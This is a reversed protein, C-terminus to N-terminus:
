EGVHLLGRSEATGTGIVTINGRSDHEAIVVRTEYTGIDIGTVIARAM